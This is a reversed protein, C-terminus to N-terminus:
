KYHKIIALPKRTRKVPSFFGDPVQVDEHFNELKKQLIELNDYFSNKVDPIFLRLKPLSVCPSEETSMPKPVERNVKRLYIDSRNNRANASTSRYRRSSAFHESIYGPILNEKNRDKVIIIKTSRHTKTRTQIYSPINLNRISM